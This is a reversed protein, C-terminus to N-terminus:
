SSGWMDDRVHERLKRLAAALRSKVTGIPIDESAAIESATLGKFYALELAQRQEKPLTEIARRLTAHDPLFALNEHAPDPLDPVGDDELSAVRRRANLRLRDIARSRLRLLLWTRVGGRQPSYSASSRWAEMFVDQVLDEANHQHALMRHAVALLTSAYRDYLEALAQSDGNAMAAVLM